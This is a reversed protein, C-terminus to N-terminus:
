SDLFNFRFSILNQDFSITRYTGLVIDVLKEGHQFVLRDGPRLALAVDREMEFSITATRVSVISSLGVTEM